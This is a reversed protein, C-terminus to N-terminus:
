KSLYISNCINFKKNTDIQYQFNQMGSFQIADRQKQLRTIWRLLVDSGLHASSIWCRIHYICIVCNTNLQMGNRFLLAVM